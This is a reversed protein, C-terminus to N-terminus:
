ERMVELLKDNSEQVQKLYSELDSVASRDILLEERQIMLLASLITNCFGKFRWKKVTEKTKPLFVDEYREVMVNMDNDDVIRVNGVTILVPKEKSM